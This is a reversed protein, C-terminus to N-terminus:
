INSLVMERAMKDVAYVNSITLETRRLDLELAKTVLEGIKLFSIKNDLFLEVAQENAGNVACPYLGGLKAAKIAAGLCKFTEADPREFTLAGVEFLSLPKAPSPLRDPWTVAYQIPIRMDTSGLQAIVAGDEFEVASHIISQRHVHIDIKDAGVSFLHMAEILELGKNMLTASDISIKRGMSWNPHKLAQAPTIDKLEEVTKGFFPGGSATLIIKKIRDRNEGNLCQFIASHESDVPIIEINNQKAAETVLGGGTVLAEKNALALTNGAECASLAAALGAIGVISDLVVDTKQAALEVIAEEGATVKIDTDALATKLDTYLSSDGIAVCRPNFERAQEELLAVSSQACLGTVKLNLNRAVDLAQRGISGTSGLITINNNM